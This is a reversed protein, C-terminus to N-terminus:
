SSYILANSCFVLKLALGLCSAFLFGPAFVYL